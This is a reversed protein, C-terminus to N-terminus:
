GCRLHSREPELSFVLLPIFNLVAALSGIRRKLQGEQGRDLVRRIWLPQQLCGFELV